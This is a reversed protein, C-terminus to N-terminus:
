PDHELVIDLEAEEGAGLHVSAEGRSMDDAYAAVTYHGPGLAGFAYRGTPGTVQAIDPHDPSSGTMAVRAGEEPRGDRRLVRGGIRGSHRAGAM